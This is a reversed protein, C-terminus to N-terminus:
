LRGDAAGDERESEAPGASLEVSEGTEVPCRVALILSKDDDTRENVRPSGLFGALQDGAQGNEGDTAAQELFAFLPDFFPAHPELSPFRLALRTLGDSMVALRNVSGPQVCIQLHDLADEQTLFVTENAYEGRQLTNITTLAGAEGAVVVGDGLSAVALWEGSVAACTLTTAYDRLPRGEEAALFELELRAWECAATLVESWAEATSPLDDALAASLADLAEDVAIRAGQASLEASGAGDALALLLIGDPGARYDLADQCPLDLAAHARGPVAAAVVAWEKPQPSM